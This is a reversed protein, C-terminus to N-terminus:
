ERGWRCGRALVSTGPHGEVITGWDRGASCFIDLLGYVLSASTEPFALIAMQVRPNSSASM